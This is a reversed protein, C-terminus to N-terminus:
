VKKTIISPTGSANRLTLIVRSEANQPSGGRKGAYKTQNYEIEEQSTKTQNQRVIQDIKVAQKVFVCIGLVLFTM